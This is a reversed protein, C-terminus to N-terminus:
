GRKQAAVMIVGVVGEADQGDVQAAEVVTNAMDFGLRPLVRQVDSESICACPYRTDGVLYFDTERLCAMFLHGGPAVVRGLNAMVEEWRSLSIGVEETCYFATVVPYTTAAGLIHHRRLDCPLLARMKERSIAELAATDHQGSFRAQLQLVLDAYAIWNYAGPEDDRWKRVEELNEPLYDAMHIEAARTAFSMAHHVTPGCGVELVVPTGVIRHLHAALFTLVAREDNTPPKNRYFTEMYTSAFSRTQQFDLMGGVATPPRDCRPGTEVSM